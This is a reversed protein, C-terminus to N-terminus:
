RGSYATIERSVWPPAPTVRIYRARVDPFGIRMPVQRFNSLAAALAPEGIWDEWAKIWNIGDTSTEVTMQPGVETDRWYLNVTIGRVLQESGLDIAAYGAENEVPTGPIAEGFPPTRERPRAPIVYVPGLGSEEQLVGGAQQVLARWEGTQDHDRHVVVAVQRQRAFYTLISPDRRRLFNTLLGYYPPTHGSYGNVIPHRHSMARYMAGISVAGDDLPLELVVADAPATIRVGQPPAALPMPEVWGDVFLGAGVLAGAVFRRSSGRPALRAAAIAAALSLCLTSMMGFRAPVRLGDFGPLWTLLWYPHLLMSSVSAEESPGLCLWSILVASLGYFVAASRQGFAAIVQRRSFLAATGLICLAVVTAGPFLFGEQTPGQVSPWFKLLEPVRVFSDLTASFTLMESLSRKLGLSAHVEKYHLLSPVLLLSSGAFTLGLMVGRRANQRWDVFWLLWLAVLVPFFLLYYGNSLAQLLWAAAFLMLWRRRGDDLYAHMALLALPMWQSTLVQLHSLQSARYPAFGFAVGAVLGAATSGTLRRGLLFGFYGSLWFSLILAVNYAALTNLGALQLPATFVAIGFLHESLTLAGRMPYFISPNWWADTFPVAQTNWWLIWANLLPDGPDHPIRWSLRTALPWTWAVALALFLASFLASHQISLASTSRSKMRVEASLM